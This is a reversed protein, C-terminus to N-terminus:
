LVQKRNKNTNKNYTDRNPLIPFNLNAGTIYSDCETSTFDLEEGSRANLDGTILVSGQAQFHSVEEEITSFIGENFYPSEILPIYIACM